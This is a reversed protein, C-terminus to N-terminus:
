VLSFGGDVSYAQGTIFDAAPDALFAVVRAVDAPEGLRPIPAAPLDIPEPGRQAPQRRIRDAHRDTQITGLCVANVTTRRSALGM